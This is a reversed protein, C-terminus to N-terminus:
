VFPQRLERRIGRLLRHIRKCHLDPEFKLITTCVFTGLYLLLTTSSVWPSGDPNRHLSRTPQPLRILSPKCNASFSEVLPVAKSCVRGSPPLHAADQHLGVRWPIALQLEDVGIFAARRSVGAGPIKSGWMPEFSQGQSLFNM